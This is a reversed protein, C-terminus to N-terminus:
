SYGVVIYRLDAYEDDVLTFELMVRELRLAVWVNTADGSTRLM